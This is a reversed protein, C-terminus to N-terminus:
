IDGAKTMTNAVDDVDFGTTEIVNVAAVVGVGNPAVTAAEDPVSM